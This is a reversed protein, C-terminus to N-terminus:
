GPPHLRHESALLAALRAVAARATPILLRRGAEHLPVWDLESHEAPEQNAPRGKWTTVLFYAVVGVMGLGGIVAIISWITEAM